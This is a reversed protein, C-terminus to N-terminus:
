IFLHGSMVNSYQINKKFSSSFNLKICWFSIIFIQPCLNVLIRVNCRHMYEFIMIHRWFYAWAQTDTLIFAFLSLHIFIYWRSKHWLKPYRNWKTTSYQEKVPITLLQRDRVGCHATTFCYTDCSFFFNIKAANERNEGLINGRIRFVSAPLQMCILTISWKTCGHVICLTYM